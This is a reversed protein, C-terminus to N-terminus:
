WSSLYISLANQFLSLYNLIYIAYIFLFIQPHIFSCVSLCVSPSPYLYISLCVQTSLYISLYISLNSISLYFLLLYVQIYISLYISTFISLYIISLLLSTKLCYVLKIYHHIHYIIPHNISLYSLNYYLILISFLNSIFIWKFLDSIIKLYLRISFFLYIFYSYLHFLDLYISISLRSLSLYITKKLFLPNPPLTKHSYKLYFFSLYINSFIQISFIKLMSLYISNPLSPYIPIFFLSLYISYYIYLFFLLYFVSM